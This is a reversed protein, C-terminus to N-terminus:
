QAPQLEDIWITTEAQAIADATTMTDQSGILKHIKPDLKVNNGMLELTAWTKLGNPKSTEYLEFSSYFSDAILVMM